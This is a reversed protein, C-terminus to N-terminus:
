ITFDSLRIGGARNKKRLIAKSKPPRKHKWIFWLLKQELQTLFAMSLKISIANFRYITKPYYLWKWLISEELGLVHYIKGNTQTDKIYRILIKYNETYWDKAEKPLNIGLCKIQQQQQRQM